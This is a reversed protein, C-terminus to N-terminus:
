VLHAPVAVTEGLKSYIYCRMAVVLRTSNTGWCDTIYCYEGNIFQFARLGGDPLPAFFIKERDIIPGGLYWNTSPTYGGSHYWDGTIKHVYTPGDKKPFYYFGQCEAVMWDLASGILAFVSVQITNTTLPSM